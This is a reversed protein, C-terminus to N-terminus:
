SHYTTSRVFNAVFSPGSVQVAMYHIIMEAIIDYKTTGLEIRSSHNLQRSNKIESYSSNLV